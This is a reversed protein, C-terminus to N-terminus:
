HHTHLKIITYVNGGWICMSRGCDSRDKFRHMSPAGHSLTEIKSATTHKESAHRLLKRIRKDNRSQPHM